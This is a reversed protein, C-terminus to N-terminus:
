VWQGWCSSWIKLSKLFFFLCFQLSCQMKKTMSWGHDLLCLVHSKIKLWHNLGRKPWQQHWTPSGVLIAGTSWWYYLGFVRKSSGGVGIEDSISSHHCICILNIKRHKHGPWCWHLGSFALLSPWLKGASTHAAVQVNMWMSDPSGGHLLLYESM